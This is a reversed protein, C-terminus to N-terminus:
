VPSCVSVFEKELTQINSHMLSTGYQLLGTLMSQVALVDGAYIVRSENCIPSSKTTALLRREWDMAEEISLIRGSQLSKFQFCLSILYCVDLHCRCVRDQIELYATMCLLKCKCSGQVNLSRQCVLLM